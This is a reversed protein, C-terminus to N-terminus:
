GQCDNIVDRRGSEEGAYCDECVRGLIPLRRMFLIGDVMGLEVAIWDRRIM